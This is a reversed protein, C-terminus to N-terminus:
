SRNGYKSRKPRFENEIEAWVERVAEATNKREEEYAADDLQGLRRKLKTADAESMGVADTRKLALLWELNAQVDDVGYGFLLPFDAERFPPAIKNKKCRARIQVGVTRQVKKRTVKVQGKNALWLTHTAYFDLARGGSRKLTEGFAVGINDRVQSIVFLTVNSRKLQQIHRRFLESLKKQKGMSYSGEDIKRKQEDRDSLADLSDVVYFTRADSDFREILDEFLDEVTHIEPFEIRKEPLGLTEAYDPDFAAEAEAYVVRGKPNAAAFNACAEIALLTKGTSNHVVFGNAIFNHHPAEMEIDYTARVGVPEISVIEVPVTRRTNRTLDEAHELGHEVADLLELNEYRDDSPDGNKHHVHLSPDTYALESARDEDSRLIDVFEFLELGNLEAEIVLRATIMRKYNKGAVIHQWGYPHYQIGHTTPRHAREARGKNLGKWALVRSGVVLGTNATKWGETTLFRHDPTAEVSDGFEDTIRVVEKVGSSRVDLVRNMGVHSGLDCLAHTEAGSRANPHRAHFRNYLTEITMKKPKGGRSVSVVTGAAICRDGVVNAVRSYAWGGGLVCDLLTCGSSFVDTRPERVSYADLPEEEDLARRRRVKKAAM